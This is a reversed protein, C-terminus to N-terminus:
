GWFNDTKWHKQFYQSQQPLERALWVIAISKITPMEKFHMIVQATDSSNKETFTPQHMM